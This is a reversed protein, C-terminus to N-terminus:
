FAVSYVSKYNNKANLDNSVSIRTNQTIHIPVTVHTKQNRVATAVVNGAAAAKGGATVTASATQQAAQRVAAQESRSDGAALQAATRAQANLEKIKDAVNQEQRETVHVNDAAAKQTAAVM